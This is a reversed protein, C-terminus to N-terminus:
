LIFLYNGCDWYRRYKANFMNESESLSSDYTKLWKSLKQKTCKYRSLIENGDTWFYGPSTTRLLTFGMALYGRGNSKSRDCYSILTNNNILIKLAKILKSGGGVVTLYKISAMRHLEVSNDKAFRNRGASIAMVLSEDKYLGLYYTSPMYGQLHNDDFFQRAIDTTLSKVKTQRAYVKDCVGLKSKLISKVIDNKNKWEWDTIHILSIGKSAAEKTKNLHRSDDEHSFNAPNFSHWYLGNIEIAIKKSPIYLDIEKSKLITWNSSECLLGLSEVYEKIEIEMLSYNSRRRIPFGHGVCYSAVTSYYINLERAIDVSSRQKVVYENHLWTYDTLKSHVSESIKPKTWISKIDNRQSNYEVGYKEHMSKNRKANINSNQETTYNSKSITVQKSIAEKTCQCSSAPGCGIFGTPWRDFKKINGFECVNSINNIASYIMSPWSESQILSNDIVWNSLITDRKILVAYHKPKTKVLDLIRNRM